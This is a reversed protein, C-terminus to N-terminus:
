PCLKAQTARWFDTIPTSCQCESFSCPRQLNVTKTFRAGQLKNTRDAEINVEWQGSLLKIQRQKHQFFWGQIHLDLPCVLYYTEQGKEWLCAQKIKKFLFCAEKEVTLAEDKWEWLTHKHRWCWNVRVRISKHLEKPQPWEEWPHQSLQM